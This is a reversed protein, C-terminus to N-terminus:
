LEIVPPCGASAAFHLPTSGKSTSAVPDAGAELLQSFALVHGGRCTFMLPTTGNEDAAEV